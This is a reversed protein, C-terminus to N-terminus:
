NFSTIFWDDNEFPCSMDEQDMFNGERLIESHEDDIEVPEMERANALRASLSPQLKEGM